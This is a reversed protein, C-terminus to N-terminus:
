VRRGSGGSGSGRVRFGLGRVRFGLGRVGFGLAQGRREELPGSEAEEQEPWPQLNRRNPPNELIRDDSMDSRLQLGM